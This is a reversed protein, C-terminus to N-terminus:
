WRENSEISPAQIEDSERASVAERDSWDEAMQRAQESLTPRGLRDLYHEIAMRMLETVNQFRGERLLRDIAKQQHALPAFHIKRDAIKKV